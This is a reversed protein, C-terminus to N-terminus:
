RFLSLGVSLDFMLHVFLILILVVLLLRISSSSSSRLISSTRLRSQPSISFSCLRSVVLDFKLNSAVTCPNIYMYLVCGYRLRFLPTVMLLVLYIVLISFPNTRTHVLPKPMPFISPSRYSFLATRKIFMIHLLDLPLCIRFLLCTRRTM